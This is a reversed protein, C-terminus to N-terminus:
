LIGGLVIRITVCQKTKANICYIELPEDTTKLNTVTFSNPNNISVKFCRKDAMDEAVLIDFPTDTQVGNDYEYVTYTESQNLRILNTDPTIVNEVMPIVKEGVIIKVRAIVSTKNQMCAIFECEGPEIFDYEGTLGDIDAIFSDTSSWIVPENVEEDNLTVTATLKDHFGVVNEISQLTKIEYKYERYNAISLELNDHKGTNDYDAYFSLIKLSNEDFTVTRDFNTKERVKYPTGGFICRYNIGINKTWQNEQCTFQIRGSPVDISSNRFIQNETVKYDVTVPEKHINGYRDQMTIVNNCRRVYVESQDTRINDTSYVIWINNDFRYRLGLSPKYTIDPFIIKKFDDNIRQGTKADIISNVRVKLTKFELTGFEIEEEIDEYYTSANDFQSDIVAQLGMRWGVSPEITTGLFTDYYSM